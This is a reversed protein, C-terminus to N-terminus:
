KIQRDTFEGEFVLKEVPMRQSVKEKMKRVSEEPRKGIAVMADVKHTENNIKAVNAARDFEFGGLGHVVLGRASGELAMSM